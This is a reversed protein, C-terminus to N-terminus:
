KECKTDMWIEKYCEECLYDGDSDRIAEAESMIKRCNLCGYKM